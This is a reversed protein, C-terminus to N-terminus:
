AGGVADDDDVVAGGVFREGDGAREGGATDLDDRLFVEPDGGGDPVQEGEGGGVAVQDGGEVGIVSQVWIAEFFGQGDEFLIWVGAQEDGPHAQDVALVLWQRFVVGAAAPDLGDPAPPLSGIGVEQAPETLRIKGDAVAVEDCATLEEGSVWGFRVAKAVIVVEQNLGGELVTQPDHGFWQEIVANMVAIGHISLGRGDHPFLEPQPEVEVM